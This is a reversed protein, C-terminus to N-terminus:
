NVVKSYTQTQLLDYGVMGFAKKRLKGGFPTVINIDHM